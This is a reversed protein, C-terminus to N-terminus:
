HWTIGGSTKLEVIQAETWELLITINYVCSILLTSFSFASAFLEATLRRVRGSICTCTFEQTKFIAKHEVKQEDKTLFFQLFPALHEVVLSGAYQKSSKLWIFTFSHNLKLLHFFRLFIFLFIKKFVICFLDRWDWSKSFILSFYTLLGWFLTISTM